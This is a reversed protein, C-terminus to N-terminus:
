AAIPRDSPGGSNCRGRSAMPAGELFSRWDDELVFTTGDIKRAPLLGRGVLEFLKTRSFPGQKALANLRIARVM